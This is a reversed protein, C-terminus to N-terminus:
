ESDMSGAQQAQQACSSGQDGAQAVPGFTATSLHAMGLHIGIAVLLTTIGLILKQKKMRAISSMKRHSLALMFNTSGFIKDQKRSRM